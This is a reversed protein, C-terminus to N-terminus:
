SKHQIKERKLYGNFKLWLLTGIQLPLLSAITILPHFKEHPSVGFSVFSLSALIVLLLLSSRNM